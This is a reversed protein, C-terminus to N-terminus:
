TRPRPINYAKLRACFTRRSMGLLRAARTQNGSCQALSDIIRQYDDGRIAPAPAAPAAAMAAPTGRMKELPLDEPTISDGTSLLLAREVDNRLERINGPWPYSELLKVAAASLVPLPRGDRKAAADLFLRALPAIEDTRARLPPIVLSIGNLRYYLDQRFAGRAVEDELIRNTAALFRVDIARPKLAGVRMVQRTEIVRLLKVQLPSPLEGIEDLLVTGGEASELLGPKAEHADTFAVKEHGFLESELLSPSLAACNLRVFPKDARPSQAHISEALVEKGVGTEGLILVNINAAAARRALLHVRRMEPGCRIEDASPPGSVDRGQVRECARAILGDASRGDTPFFALGSRADIARRGLGELMREAVGEARKRNSELLLLEYEDPGYSALVDGPRLLTAVIGSATEATTGPAVHLRVVAFTAGTASARECEEELRGEFYAHTPLRRIRVVPRRRQIMLTAWGISIAEGPLVVARRGPPVLEGRLRTGNMSGLDEIELTPGVYLRAHHRSAEADDLRVDDEGDRGITVVGQEPLPHMSFLNAGMVILHLVGDEVPREDVERVTRAGQATDRSDPTTM